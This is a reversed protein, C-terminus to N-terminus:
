DAPDNRLEDTATVRWCRVEHGDGLSRMEQPMEHCTPLAVPCRSALYCGPPLDIPSPIEGELEYEIEQDIRRRSPDPFLVSALLGKSYPHRAHSFVQEKTGMEVIQSLYMVAVRHCIDEVTSLDHSIYLYSLGLEEQLRRLLLLIEVQAVPALSSIPEDLVIFDPRTVVARAIGVRQQEGSSLEAPYWDLQEERLGVFQVTELVRELREVSAMDLHLLLPEELTAQVTMMPNLSDFPEQFVIQLKARFPRFADQPLSSLDKGRYRIEGSTPEELRLLCRGTTTKGSGSEGVLGLTEGERVEFSVDKVAQLPKESGEIEFYKTLEKVL